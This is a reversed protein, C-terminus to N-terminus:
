APSIWWGPKDGFKRIVLVFEGTKTPWGPLPGRVRVVFRRTEGPTGLVSWPDTTAWDELVCRVQWRLGLLTHWVLEPTGREGLHVTAPAEM